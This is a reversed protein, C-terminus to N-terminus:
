LNVELRKFKYIHCTCLSRALVRHGSRPCIKYQIRRLRSPMAMPCLHVAHGGGGRAVRRMTTERQYAVTCLRM